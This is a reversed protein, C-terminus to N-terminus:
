QTSAVARGSNGDIGSPQSLTLPSHSLEKDIQHLQLPAVDTRPVLNGQDHTTAYQGSGPRSAFMSGARQVGAHERVPKEREARARLKGAEAENADAAGAIRGVRAFAVQGDTVMGAVGVQQRLVQTDASRDVLEVVRDAIDGVQHHALGM